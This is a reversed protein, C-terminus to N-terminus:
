NGAERYQTLVAQSIRGRGSVEIGRSSAWARVASADYDAAGSPRAASRASTTKRGVKRGSSVYNALSDRLSSAEGSTLDIEYPVGDLSFSVTEQASEGSLDSTLEVVVRQAM